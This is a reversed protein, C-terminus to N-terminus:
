AFAEDRTGVPSSPANTPRTLTGVLSCLGRWPNLCPVHACPTPETSSSLASFGRSFQACGSTLPAQAPSLPSCTPDWLGAVRCRGVRTRDQLVSLHLSPLPLGRQAGLSSGPAGPGERRLGWFRGWGWGCGLWRGRGRGRWDHAAPLRSVAVQAKMETM